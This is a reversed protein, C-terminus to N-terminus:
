AGKRAPQEAGSELLPWLFRFVGTRGRVRSYSLQGLHREAIRRALFLGLGLGRRGKRAAMSLPDQYFRLFILEESGPAVGDGDDAVDIVVMGNSSYLTVEVKGTKAHIIANKLVEWVSWTFLRLNGRVRCDRDSMKQFRVVTTEGAEQGVVTPAETTMRECLDAVVAAADFDETAAEDRPKAGELSLSLKDLMTLAQETHQQMIQRYEYWTERQLEPDVETLLSAYGAVSAMPTRLEHDILRHLDVGLAAVHESFAAESLQSRHEDRLKLGRIRSALVELGAHLEGARTRKGAANKVVFVLKADFAEQEPFYFNAGKAWHDRWPSAVAIKAWGLPLGRGNERTYHSSDFYDSVAAPWDPEDGLTWTGASGPGAGVPESIVLPAWTRNRLQYCAAAVFGLHRILVTFAESDLAVLNQLYERKL